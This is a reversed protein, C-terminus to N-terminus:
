GIDERHDLGLVVAGLMMAGGLGRLGLVLPGCGDGFEGELLGM